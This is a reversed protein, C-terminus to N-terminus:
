ISSVTSKADRKPCYRESAAHSDKLFILETFNFNFWISFCFYFKDLINWNVGPIVNICVSFYLRGDLYALSVKLGLV